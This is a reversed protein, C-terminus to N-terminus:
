VERNLQACILCLSGGSLDFCVEDIGDDHAESIDGEDESEGGRGNSSGVGIALLSEVLDVLAGSVNKGTAGIFLDKM